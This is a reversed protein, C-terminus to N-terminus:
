PPQCIVTVCLHCVVQLALTQKSSLLPLPGVRTHSRGLLPGMMFSFQAEGGGATLLHWHRRQQHHFEKDVEGEKVSLNLRSQAQAPRKCATMIAPLEHMSRGATDPFRQKSSTVGGGWTKRVGAEM